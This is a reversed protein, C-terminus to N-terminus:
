LSAEQRHIRIITEIWRVHDPSLLRNQGEKKWNEEIRRAIREPPDATLIQYLASRPPLGTDRTLLSAAGVASLWSRAETLPLWDRGVLSRVAPVPPVYVAGLGGRFDIPEDEKHIAVSADFVFSLILAVYLRRLAKSTESEEEGVAVEYSLPIFILNPTECILHITEYLRFVERRIARFEPRDIRNEVLADVAEDWATFSQDCAANLPGLDDDFEEKLRKLAERRRKKQTEDNFRYSFVSLIDSPELASPDRDGLHRAAQDTFGLSFGLELHGSEGRMQAQAAAVWEGVKRVFQEGKGPGVNLRPMLTIVEAPRGGLLTQRLLREYYCTMCVMIYGFAGHAVARNTHTQPNDIFDASAKKGGKVDFPINCVPCLYIGRRSEKGAFPKSQRYHALQREALSQIDGGSVPSLLDKIFAQAMGKSLEERPSPRDIAAYVQQAITDLLDILVDLRTQDPLEEVKAVEPHGVASGSLAWFYDITKAMDRAAMLTSTSQLAAWSGPGFTQEYRRKALAAGDEGIAPIKDPDIMAKIFKFVLMEPQAVSIRGAEQEVQDDTPKGARDKLKWYDEVVKRKAALKKKAFSQPGIKQSAIQLYRRSERFSVLDPKPLINGTPSGVMLPAVDRSIAEDIRAKLAAEIEGATPVGPRDNPDAGYVTVNSFYLLAKWGRQQFATRAAHHLFATSVGRVLAEHSTVLLHQGLAPDNTVADKADAASSASCFHDIARVLHALTLFRDTGGSLLAEIIAGDGRGPRTHHFEACHAMIRQVPQALEEFGLAGCLEPVVMRTLNPIVHSVWRDPRPDRIYAQWTETEKGADHALVAVALIKQEDESLDYHRPQALIPMLELLLDLEILGHEFLSQEYDRRKALKEKWGRAAAWLTARKLIESREM